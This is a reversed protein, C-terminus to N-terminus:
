WLGLIGIGWRGWWSQGIGTAVEGVSSGFYRKNHDEATTVYIDKTVVSLAVEGRGRM